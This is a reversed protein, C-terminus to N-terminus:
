YYEEDQDVWGVEPSVYRLGQSNWNSKSLELFQHYKLCELEDRLESLAYNWELNYQYNDSVDEIDEMTVNNGSKLKKLDFIGNEIELIRGDIDVPFYPAMDDYYKPKNM